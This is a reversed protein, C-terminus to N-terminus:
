YGNHKGKTQRCVSHVVATVCYCFLLVLSLPAGESGFASREGLTQGKPLTAGRPSGRCRQENRLRFELWM